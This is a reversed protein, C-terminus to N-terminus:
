GGTLSQFTTRAENAVWVQVACHFAGIGVPKLWGNLSQVQYRHSDSQTVLSKIRSPNVTMLTEVRLSPFLHARLRRRKYMVLSGVTNSKGLDYINLRVPEDDEM